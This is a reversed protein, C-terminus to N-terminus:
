IRCPLAGAFALSSCSSRQSLIIILAWHFMSIGIREGEESSGKWAKGTWDLVPLGLERFIELPEYLDGAKYRAVKPTEGTPTPAKNEKPFAATIALRELEDKNLTTQVAVLYKVLDVISWDGTKIM